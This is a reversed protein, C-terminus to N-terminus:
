NGTRKKWSVCGGSTLHGMRGFKSKWKFYTATSIGAERCVEAM